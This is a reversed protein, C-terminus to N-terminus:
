KWLLAHVHGQRYAVLHSSERFEHAELRQFVQQPL